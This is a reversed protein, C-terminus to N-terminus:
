EAARSARAKGMVLAAGGGVVVFGGVLEIASPEEGLVLAAGALTILPTVMLAGSSVIPGLAHVARYLLVHGFAVGLLASLIILALTKARLSLVASPEGNILMLVVLAATTYLSIVGFTLRVPYAAMCRRICVTYAGWCVTTGVLIAMGPWLDARAGTLRPVFMIAVGTVCLAAGAWFAPQRALPREERLCLFGFLISFLFSLRVVFGITSASVYYPCAGWGVQSLINIGAPLLADLWVSRGAEIHQARLRRRLLVVAPLWFVAGVSYRVANLTWKDIDDIFSRLFIPVVGFCLLAACLCLLARTKETGFRRM